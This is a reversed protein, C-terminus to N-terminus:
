KTSELYAVVGEALPEHCGVYLHNADPIVACRPPPGSGSSQAIDAALGAFAAGGNDLEDSGFIFFVPCTIRNMFRLFNYRSPPGYKDLYTAASVAFPFPFTAQFLKQSHGAAILQEATHLSDLFEDAEPGQRFHQHSLRPPSIAIVHRIAEHPEYAQSYIAKIAGLSHGILAIRSCNNECLFKIWASIDLRCEDVIEYAAGLLQGGSPTSATSIGDHGRTNVRLTTVGLRTFRNALHEILSSSYFNGGVGSLFITADLDAPGGDGAPSQLAGDLRIGDAAQTKVLEM